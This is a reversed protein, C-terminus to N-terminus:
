EALAVYLPTGLLIQKDDAEGYLLRKALFEVRQIPGNMQTTATLIARLAYGADNRHGGECYGLHERHRRNLEPEPLDVAKCLMSVLLPMSSYSLALTHGAAGIVHRSSGGLGLVSKATMGSFYVLDKEHLFPGWRVDLVDSIYEAPQDVTGVEASKEIHRRVVELKSYRTQEETGQKLSASAFGVNINLEGVLSSLVGKPIQAFLMDVKTDSVYIYYKLSM